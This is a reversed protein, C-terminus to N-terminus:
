ICLMSVLQWNILVDHINCDIILGTYMEWQSSFQCIYFLMGKLLISGEAKIRLLKVFVVEGFM